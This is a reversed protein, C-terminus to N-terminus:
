SSASFTRVRAVRREFVGVGDGVLGVAQPVQGVIRCVGFVALAGVQRRRAGAVGLRALDEGRVALRRFRADDGLRVFLDLAFQKGSGGACDARCARAGRRLQRWDCIPFSPANSMSAIRVADVGADSIASMTPTMAEM